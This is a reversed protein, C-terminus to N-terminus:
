LLRMLSLLKDDLGELTYKRPRTSLTTKEDSYVVVGHEEISYNAETMTIINEREEDFLNSYGYFAGLLGGAICANTDTDGGKRIIEDIAEKYSDFQFLGYFACYFGFVVWGKQKTDVNVDEGNYAKLLYEKLIPVTIEKLIKRYIRDKTYGSLSYKIARTYIINAEVSVSSPNTIKCNEIIVNDPFLSLVAARMLAGNSQSREIKEKTDFLLNYRKKYGKITKVGKFLKRTNIGLFRSNPSGAWEMYSEIVKNNDYGKNDIISNITAITMETDDSIQGIYTDWWVKQRQPHRRLTYQLTGTYPGTTRSHFEHPLGLADGLAAGYVMGKIKDLFQIFIIRRLEKETIRNRRSIVKLCERYKENTADYKNIVIDDM